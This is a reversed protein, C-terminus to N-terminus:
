ASDIYVKICNYVSTDDKVLEIGYIKGFVHNSLMCNFDGM